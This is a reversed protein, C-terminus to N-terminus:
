MPQNNRWWEIIVWLMSCATSMILNFWWKDMCSGFFLCGVCHLDIAFSMNEYLCSIWGVIWCDLLGFIWCDLLGVIWYDLLGAISVKNDSLRKVNPCMVSMEFTDIYLCDSVCFCWSAGFQYGRCCTEVNLDILKQWGQTVENKCWVFLFWDLGLCWIVVLFLIDSVLIDFESDLIQHVWKDYSM